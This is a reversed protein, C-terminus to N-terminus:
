RKRKFKSPPNGYYKKFLKSFHYADDYGVSKAVTKIPMSGEELLGLAKSLRVKILYNIPSEGIEEKFIKSIYAPSLFMNRSIKELSIDKMYNENIYSIITNVINIKDYSELYFDNKEDQSRSNLLNGNYKATERLFIGILKILLSKLILWCGPENMEQESIIESCCSIFDQEYRVFRFVPSADGAILHNKPLGEISINTFGIHFEISEQGHNMIRSHYVQPNIVVLDGKKLQYYVGDIKYTSEGSLFYVMSIFDHCHYKTSSNENYKRKYIYLLKPNFSDIDVGLDCL